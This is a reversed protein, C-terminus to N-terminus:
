EEQLRLPMILHLLFEKGPLRCVAPHMSDTIQIEVEENEMHNLFDLLYSSSLAIKNEKGSQSVELTAEDKGMQTQPTTMHMKGNSFHFTINNNIEKAFYHMRRIVTLLERVPVTVKTKAEKPIIQQYDPFKGDILRSLLRTRGTRLEIQQNSLAIEITAATQHDKGKKEEKEKKSEEGKKSGLVAKLEELVKAPIICSLDAKGTSLPVKYESLRYSDTSVFILNGKEARLYVGSLVPRLTSKASAFTVMHLADLLPEAGITFTEENEIPTITPYETASEGAILTKAHTSTCKLQNGGSTELLVEADSNYQAFNLIAKAPVTIAGENEINAEFSTVISLELDTASIVCRKGEVEVLVNNLIPLTQQGGIARNVLQLAQLLESTKCSFKM